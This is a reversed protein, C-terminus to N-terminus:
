VAGLVDGPLADLRQHGALLLDDGGRERDLGLLRHVLHQGVRHLRQAVPHQGLGAASGRPRGAPKRDTTPRAEGPGPLAPVTTPMSSTTMQEGSRVGTPRNPPTKAPSDALWSAAAASRPRASRVPSPSPSTSSTM